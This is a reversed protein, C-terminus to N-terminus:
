CYTKLVLTCRTANLFLRLRLPVCYIEKFSVPDSFLFIRNLPPIPFPLGRLLCLFMLTMLTCFSMCVDVGGIKLQTVGSLTESAERARWNGLNEALKQM